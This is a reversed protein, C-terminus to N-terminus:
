LSDITWETDSVVGLTTSRNVINRAVTGNESSYSVTFTYSLTM